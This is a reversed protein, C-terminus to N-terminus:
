LYFKSSSITPNSTKFMKGFDIKWHSFCRSPFNMIQIRNESSDWATSRSLSCLEVKIIENEHIKDALEKRPLHEEEINFRFSFKSSFNLKFISATKSCFFRTIDSSLKSSFIKWRRGARTWSIIFKQKRNLGSQAPIFYLAQAIKEGNSLEHLFNSQQIADLSILARRSISHFSYSEGECVTAFCPCICLM